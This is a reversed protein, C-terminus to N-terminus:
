VDIGMPVGNEFLSWMSKEGERCNQKHVQRLFCLALFSQSRDYYPTGAIGRLARSGFSTELLKAKYIRLSQFAAFHWTVEDHINVLEEVKMDGSHQLNDSWLKRFEITSM